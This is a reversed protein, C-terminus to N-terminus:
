SDRTVSSFLKFCWRGQCVCGCACVRALATCACMSACVLCQYRFRWWHMKAHAYMRMVCVYVCASVCMCVPARYRFISTLNDAASECHNLSPRSLKVTSAPLGCEMALYTLMEFYNNLDNQSMGSSGYGSKLVGSANFCDQLSGAADAGRVRV